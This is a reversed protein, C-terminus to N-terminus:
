QVMGIDGRNVAHLFGPAPPEEGHFQHSSLRQGFLDFAARNRQIFGQGNRRLNRFRQFRRVLLADNMPIQFGCVDLDRRFAFHLHQIEPQRFRKGTLRRIRTEFEGVILM